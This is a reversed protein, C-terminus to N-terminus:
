PSKTGGDGRGASQVKWMSFAESFVGALASFTSVMNSTSLTPSAGATVLDALAYGDNSCRDVGLEM